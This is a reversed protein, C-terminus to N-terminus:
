QTRGNKWNLYGITSTIIVGNEDYECIECVTAEEKSVPNRHEDYYFVVSKVGGSPTKHIRSETFDPKKAVGADALAEVQERPEVSCRQVLLGIAFYLAVPLLFATLCGVKVSRKLRRRKKKM